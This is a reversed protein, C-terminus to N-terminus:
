ISPQSTMLDEEIDLESTTFIHISNEEDNHHVLVGIANNWVIPRDKPYRKPSEPVGHYRLVGHTSSQQNGPRLRAFPGELRHGFFLLLLPWIRFSRLYVHHSIGVGRDFEMLGLFGSTARVRRFERDRPTSKVLYGNPGWPGFGHLWSAGPRKCVTYGYNTVMPGPDRM